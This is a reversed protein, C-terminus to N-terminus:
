RTFLGTNLNRTVATFSNARTGSLLARDAAMKEAAGAASKASEALREYQRKMERIQLTDSEAPVAMERYISAMQRCSQAWAQEPSTLDKITSAAESQSQIPRVAGQQGFATSAALIVTAASMTLIKM